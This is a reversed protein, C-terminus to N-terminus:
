RDQEYLRYMLAEEASAAMEHQLEIERQEMDFQEQEARNAEDRREQEAMEAAFKLVPDTEEIHWGERRLQERGEFSLKRVEMEDKISQIAARLWEASNWQEDSSGRPRFGYYDKHFDSYISQLQEVETYQDWGRNM